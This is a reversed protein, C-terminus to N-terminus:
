ARRRMQRGAALRPPAAEDHESLNAARVSKQLAALVGLKQAATGGAQRMETEFRLSGVCAALWRAASRKNAVGTVNECLRVLLEAEVLM